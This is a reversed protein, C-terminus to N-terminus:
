DDADLWTAHTYTSDQSVRGTSSQDSVSRSLARDDPVLPQSAAKLIREIQPITPYGDHAHPDISLCVDNYKWIEDVDMAGARFWPHKRIGEMTLRHEGRCLLRSLLDKCAASIPPHEPIDYDLEIIRFVVCGRSRLIYEGERGRERSEREGERGRKGGGERERESEKGSARLTLRGSLISFCSTIGTFKNEAGETVHVM